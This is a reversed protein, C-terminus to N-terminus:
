RGLASFMALGLGAAVTSAAGVVLACVVYGGVGVAREGFLRRQV